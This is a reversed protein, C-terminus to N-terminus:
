VRFGVGQIRSGSCDGPKALTRGFCRVTWCGFGAAVHPLAAQM